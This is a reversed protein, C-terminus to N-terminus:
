PNLQDGLRFSRRDALLKTPRQEARMADFLDSREIGLDRLRHPDLDLLSKLAVRQHREARFQAFWNAVMRLPNLSSAAAVPREGSLVLAM